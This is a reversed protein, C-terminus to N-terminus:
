QGILAGLEECSYDEVPECDGLWDTTRCGFHCDETEPCNCAEVINPAVSVDCLEHESSPEWPLTDESCSAGSGFCERHRWQRIATGDGVFAVLRETEDIDGGLFVLHNVLGPDGSVALETACEASGWPSIDVHERIQECSLDFGCGFLDVHLPAGTDSTGDMTASDSMSGAATADGSDGSTEDQDPVDDSSSEGSPCGSVGLVLM